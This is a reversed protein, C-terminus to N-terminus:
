TLSPNVERRIQWLSAPHVVECPLKLHYVADGHSRIVARIPEQSVFTLRRKHALAVEQWRQVINDDLEFHWTGRWTLSAFPGEVRYIFACAHRRGGNWLAFNRMSPMQKAWTAAVRLLTSIRPLNVPSNSLTDSTLALSELRPWAWGIPCGQFFGEANIIFSVALHQLGRSQTALIPGILADQDSPNHLLFERPM